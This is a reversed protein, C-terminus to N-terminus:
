AHRVVRTTITQTLPDTSYEYRGAPSTDDPDFNPLEGRHRQPQEEAPNPHWIHGAIFGRVIEASTAIPRGDSYRTPDGCRAALARIESVVSQMAELGTEHIDDGYEESSGCEESCGISESVWSWRDALIAAAYKLADDARVRKIEPAPATDAHRELRERLSEHKNTSM